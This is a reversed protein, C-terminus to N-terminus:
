QRRLRRLGCVIQQHARPFFDEHNREARHGTAGSLPERHDTRLIGGMSSRQWIRVMQTIPEAGQYLAHPHRFPLRHFLELGQHVHRTNQASLTTSWYTPLTRGTPLWVQHSPLSCLWKIEYGACGDVGYWYLHADNMNVIQCRYPDDSGKGTNDDM